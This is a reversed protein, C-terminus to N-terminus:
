SPVVCPRAVAEPACEKLDAQGRRFKTRVLGLVQQREADAEGIYDLVARSAVASQREAERVAHSKSHLDHDVLRPVEAEVSFTCGLLKESRCLHLIADM